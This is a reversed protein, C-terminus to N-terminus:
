RPMVGRQTLADKDSQPIGAVGIADVEKLNELLLLASIDELEFIHFTVKELKRAVSIVDPISKLGGYDHFDAFLETCGNIRCIAVDIMLRNTPSSHKFLTLGLAM